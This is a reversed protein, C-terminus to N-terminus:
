SRRANRGPRRWLLLGSGLVVLAASTPEPTSVVIARNSRYDPSFILRSSNASAGAEFPGDGKFFDISGASQFMNDNSFFVSSSYNDDAAFEVVDVGAAFIDGDGDVALDLSPVNQGSALVQTSGFSLSGGTDDIMLRGIEGDFNAKAQQYILDGNPDFALGAAYTLGGVVESLTGNNRNVQYVAGSGPGAADSVFLEGTGPRVAVDAITDLQSVVQRARGTDVSYSYLKGGIDTGSRNEVRNDTILLRGNTHDFTMGGPSRLRTSLDLRANSGDSYLTTLTQSFGTTDFRPTNPDEEFVHATGTDDYAIAAPEIVDTREEFRYGDARFSSNMQAHGAGSALCISITALATLARDYSFM